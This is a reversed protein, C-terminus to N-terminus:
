TKRPRTYRCQWRTTGQGKCGHSSSTSRDWFVSRLGPRTKEEPSPPTQSSGSPAALSPCCLAAPFLGAPAAAPSAGTTPMWCAALEDSMATESHQGAKDQARRLEASERVAAEQSAPVAATTQCAQSMVSMFHSDSDRTCRLWGLLTYSLSGPLWLRGLLGGPPEVLQERHRDLHATVAQRCCSLCQGCGRRM